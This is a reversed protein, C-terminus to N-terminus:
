TVFMHRCKQTLIQEEMWDAIQLYIAKQDEFEM